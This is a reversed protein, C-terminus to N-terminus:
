VDREGARLREFGNRTVECDVHRTLRVLAKHADGVDGAFASDRIEVGAAYDLVVIASDGSTHLSVIIEGDRVDIKSHPLEGIGSDIRFDSVPQCEDLTRGLMTEVDSMTM